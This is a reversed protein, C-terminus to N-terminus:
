PRGPFEPQRDPPDQGALSPSAADGCGEQVVVHSARIVNCFHDPLEDWTWLDVAFPLDSEELAERLEAVRPRQGPTAFVVMDLDSCPHSRERMRSGYAWVAVDPLHHRLLRRLTRNQEPTIDLTASM